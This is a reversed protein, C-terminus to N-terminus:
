ASVLQRLKGFRVAVAGLLLLAGIGAGIGIGFSAWDFGSSASVGVQLEQGRASLVTDTVFGKPLSYAGVPSGNRRSIADEHRYHRELQAAADSGSGARLYPIAWSDPPGYDPELQAAADSGSGAQLYPIAWSDPPGYDPKDGALSVPAAIAATAAALALGRVLRRTTNTTSIM